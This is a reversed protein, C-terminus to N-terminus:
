AFGEIEAPLDYVNDLKGGLVSYLGSWEPDEFFLIPRSDEVESQKLVTKTEWLSERYNSAAIAPLLLAADRVMAPFQSPLEKSEPEFSLGCPDSWSYHPTYRVHSLTHLGRDPFPMLSFFPGCMVTIGLKRLAPPAEVLALETREHKLPVVKRGSALLLRNIGSYTANFVLDSGLQDNNKLFTSFNGNETKLIHSVETSLLLQISTASLREHLIQALKRANFAYEVVEFVEEIRTPHFLKRYEPRAKTLPADIRECFRKFQSANVKSYDRAIAYLKTFDSEIAAKYDSTFRDFCARSRAATLLSRPYHYGQHVRAQNNYSARGMLTSEKEVLTVSLGKRELMLALEVGFFGGGIVLARSDTRRM